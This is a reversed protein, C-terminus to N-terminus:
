HPMHHEAPLHLHSLFIPDGCANVLHGVIGGQVHARITPRQLARLYTKPPQCICVSLLHRRVPAAM